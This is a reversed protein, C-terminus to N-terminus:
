WILQYSVENGQVPIRQQKLGQKPTLIAGIRGDWQVFYSQGQLGILTANISSIGHYSNGLVLESASQISSASKFSFTRELGTNAANPRIFDEVMVNGAPWHYM